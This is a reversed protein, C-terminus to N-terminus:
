GSKKQFFIAFCLSFGTTWITGCLWLCRYLTWPHTHSRCWSSFHLQETQNCSAVWQLTKTCHDSTFSCSNLWTSALEWDMVPPLNLAFPFASPIWPLYICLLQISGNQFMGLLSKHGTSNSLKMKYFWSVFVKTTPLSLVIIAHAFIHYTVTILTRKRITALTRGLQSQGLTRRTDNQLLYIRVIGVHM